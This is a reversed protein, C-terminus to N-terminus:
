CGLSDFDACIYQYCDFVLCYFHSNGTTKGYYLSSAIPAFVLGRADLSVQASIFKLTDSQQLQTLMAEVGFRGQHTYPHVIEAQNGLKDAVISKVMQSVPDFDISRVESIALVQLQETLRRPRL